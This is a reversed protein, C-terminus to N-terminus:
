GELVKNTYKSILKLKSNTCSNSKRGETGLVGKVAQHGADLIEAGQRRMELLRVNDTALNGEGLHKGGAERQQNRIEVATIATAPGARRAAVNGLFPRERGREDLEERPRGAEFRHGAGAAM